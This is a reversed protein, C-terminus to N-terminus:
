LTANSPVIIYIRGTDGVPGPMQSTLLYLERDHGEGISLVYASVNIKLDEISLGIGSPHSDASMLGGDPKNYSKSWYGFIYSGALVPLATGRYVYGNTIPQGLDYRYEIIPDILPEGLYGTGRCSTIPISRDQINYCNSGEKINWGYNGGRTVMDAEEWRMQGPDYAFLSRSSEANFSIRPNRFGYSFIEPQANKVDIFPNDSPISYQRGISTNDIDIRLIKGLLTSLNQANGEPAHGIGVDDSGGGDGTPVYLYGEPGFIIGGGNNNSEPHDIELIIRESDPDARNPDDGSINFESIRDTHDWGKPANSKLPASYFVFIKSRNKFDPHLAIGLLGREDYSPNLKAIRKSLDLFPDKLIAGNEAIIKVSGTQDAAFMRGTGDDPSAIQIPAIFGEAVRRLGIDSRFAGAPHTIQNHSQNGAIVAAYSSNANTMDCKTIASQDSTINQNECLSFAITVSLFAMVFVKLKKMM